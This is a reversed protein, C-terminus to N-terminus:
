EGGAHCEPCVLTGDEHRKIGCAPCLPRDCLACFYGGEYHFTHECFECYESGPELWWPTESSSSEDDKM